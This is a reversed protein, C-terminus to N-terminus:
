HAGEVQKALRHLGGLDGITIRNHMFRPSAGPRRSARLILLYNAASWALRLKM